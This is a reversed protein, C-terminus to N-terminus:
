NGKYVYQTCTWMFHWLLSVKESIIMDVDVGGNKLIKEVTESNWIRVAESFERSQVIQSTMEPSLRGSGGGSTSHIFPSTSSLSRPSSSGNSRPALKDIISASGSNIRRHNSSTSSRAQLQFPSAKGKKEVRVLSQPVPVDVNHSYSAISQDEPEDASHYSSSSSRVLQIEQSISSGSDQPESPKQKSKVPMTVPKDGLSSHPGDKDHVEHLLATAAKRPTQPLM